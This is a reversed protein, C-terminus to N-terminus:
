NKKLLGEKTLWERAVKNVDEHKVDVRYNLDKM